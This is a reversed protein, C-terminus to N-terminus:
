APVEAQKGTGNRLSCPRTVPECGKYQFDRARERHL